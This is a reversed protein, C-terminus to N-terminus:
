LRIGFVEALVAPIESETLEKETVTDGDRVFVFWDKDDATIEEPANPVSISLDLSIDQMPFVYLCLMSLFFVSLLLFPILSLLFSKYKKM